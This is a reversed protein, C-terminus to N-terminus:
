VRLKHVVFGKSVHNIFFYEGILELLSELNCGLFANTVLRHHLLILCILPDKMARTVSLKGLKHCLALEVWFLRHTVVAFVAVLSQACLAHDIM